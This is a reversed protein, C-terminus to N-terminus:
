LNQVPQFAIAAGMAEAAAVVLRSARKDHRVGARDLCDQAAALDRVGVVFGAFRPTRYDARPIADGWIARVADPTDIRIMGRSTEVKLGMSTARVDRTGAFAEFFAHHDSPAASVMVVEAIEVATNAHRQYETKWFHQPALQQCTFFAAEPIFPDSAFALRFGVRAVSGDPQRADRGFEFPVYSQIGAEAFGRADADADASDLALMSIGEHRELFRHNFRPFSFGGPPPVPFADPEVVSLLELFSGHLQVLSNQTGFPHLAVPTLTFGLRGYVQRAREFGHVAIVLHDIGRAM